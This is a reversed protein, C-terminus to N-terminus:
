FRTEQRKLARMFPFVHCCCCDSAVYLIKFQGIQALFADLPRVLRHLNQLDDALFEDLVLRELADANRGAQVHGGLGRVEIIGQAVAAGVHREASRIRQGRLVVHGGAEDAVVVNGDEGDLALVVIRVVRVDHGREVVLRLDGHVVAGVQDGDQVGLARRSSALTIPPVSSVVVPTMRRRAIAFSPTSLYGITATLSASM